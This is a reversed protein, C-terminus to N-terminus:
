RMARREFEIALSRYDEAGTGTNDYTIISERYYPAEAMRVTDRVATDFVLAGYQEELMGRVDRYVLTRVKAQCVVLGVIRLAKNLGARVAEVQAVTAAVRDLAM